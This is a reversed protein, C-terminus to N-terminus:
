WQLPSCPAWWWYFLAHLGGSFLLAHLGGDQLLAHLGDDQLLAHLGGDYFLAHLGGDHGRTAVQSGRAAVDTLLFLGAM